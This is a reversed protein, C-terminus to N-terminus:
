KKEENQQMDNVVEEATSFKLDPGHEHYAGTTKGFIRDWNDAYAKSPGKTKIVDGTIDNKTAM